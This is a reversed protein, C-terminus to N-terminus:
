PRFFWLLTIGVAGTMQIYYRAGERPRFGLIMQRRALARAVVIDPGDPIVRLIRIFERRVQEGEFSWMMHISDSIPFTFPVSQGGGWVMGCPLEISRPELTRALTGSPQSDRKRRGVVDHQSRRAPQWLCTKPPKPHYDMPFGKNSIGNPTGSPSQPLSTTVLMLTAILAALFYISASVKM